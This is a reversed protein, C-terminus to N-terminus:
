RGQDFLVVDATREVLGIIVHGGDPTWTIGRPRRDQSLEVLRRAAGELPLVWVSAAAAGPDVVAALAQGDPSWAISGNALSPGGTLPPRAVEGTGAM